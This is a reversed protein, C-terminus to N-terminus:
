VDEDANSYVPSRDEKRFLPTGESDMVNKLDKKPISDYDIPGDSHSSSCDAHGFHVNFWLDNESKCGLCARMMKFLMHKGPIFMMIPIQGDVYRYAPYVLDTLGIEGSNKIISQDSFDQTQGDPFPDAM